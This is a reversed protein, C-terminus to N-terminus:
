PPQHVNDRKAGVMGVGFRTSRLFLLWPLYDKATILSTFYDRLVFLQYLEEKGAPIAAKFLRQDKEYRWGPKLEALLQRAQKLLTPALQRFCAAWRRFTELSFEATEQTQWTKMQGADKLAYAEIAGALESITYHKHPLLFPPLWNFCRACKKCRFRQIAM